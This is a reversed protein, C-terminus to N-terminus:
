GRCTFHVLRDAGGAGYYGPQDAAGELHGGNTSQQVNLQWELLAAVWVRGNPSVYLV